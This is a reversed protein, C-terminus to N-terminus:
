TDGGRLNKDLNSPYEYIYKVFDYNVKTKLSVKIRFKRICCQIIIYVALKHHFLFIAFVTSITMYVPRM